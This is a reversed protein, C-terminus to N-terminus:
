DTAAVSTRDGTPLSLFGYHDIGEIIGAAYNGKAFYIRPTGRLHELDVDHNGVVVGLTGGVLMGEDNGSDGAVLVMDLPISLRHAFYRVALGKSARVPLLDVYAGHSFVVRAQLRAKRLVRRLEAPDFPVGERVVFSVKFADQGEEPQLALGPFSLAVDRLREPRWRYSIHEKWQSDEIARRGLHIATGVSTIMFDLPPVGNEELVQLTLDLRRGTAVGIAVKPGAAKVRRFLERLPRERGILTNDIDCVMLRDASLLRGVPPRARPRSRDTKSIGKAAKMFRDVHAAWSYHANVGRIGARSWRRWRERDSLAEALTEGIAGVELPDVLLGNKCNALIDRPGGDNTAVVPLGTAAAELLTLGFPETLAPNVFVGRRRAALRYINPVDESRHHKPYAVSGHLDFNDILELLKWWTERAGRDLKAIEDRNGAVLVLNAIDRLEAQSGFAEVLRPINKRPDPRSLALVMPKDPRSLFRDIEKTIEAAHDSRLPGRLPGRLPPSFRELDVGPPIVRMRGPVYMDYLRYQEDVEQQTSAVVFSACDLSFEEAEIRGSIRYRKELKDPSMGDALLRERKVRGLSHGTFVMPVELVSSLRAAVYGADAYHGHVLDPRRGERRLFDVAHDALEPLHPWLAEKPIYKSPGAAIRVIRCNEGMPEISRAYDGSVRSDVIRRTLLDVQGVDPHRALARALEVVYKTQGGTDADRGLELDEARILGHVSIILIYRGDAGSM